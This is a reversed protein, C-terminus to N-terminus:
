RYFHSRKIVVHVSDSVRLFVWICSVCCDPQSRIDLTTQPNKECGDVVNEAYSRVIRPFGLTGPVSDSDLRGSHGINQSIACTQSRFFLCYDHENLLLFRPVFPVTNEM